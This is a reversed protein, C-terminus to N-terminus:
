RKLFRDLATQELQIVEEIGMAKLTEVYEDFKELPETGMIFKLLMEEHYVNLDTMISAKQRGEEATLTTLPMRMNTTAKEWNVLAEKQSPLELYQEIYGPDQVFPGNYSSRFYQAMAQTIPLDDPNKMIVDTYTPKGDVMTYSEGEIGFNFLNHGEPGYAYDLWKVIQEPNKAATTIAAGIGTYAFDRQGWVANEGKTLTPYPASVLEFSPDDKMLGMYKGIGSGTYGVFAATKGTTIKSDMLKSDMAAFDPDLLGKEYWRNMVTLFEKYEPQMSGYKVTGNDNYFELPIGFAGIFAHGTKMDSIRQMFPPEGNNAEKIAELTTEWEDITEPVPLGAKDLLDKRIIPGFFVMLKEHGRIFPFSYINGEDTMIMKKIEPHENMYKTLNPAHQEILENLRIITGSKIADDPGRSVSLWNREIVDPLKKSALMLNFQEEIQAGEGSPHTFTVKTGTVKELQQYIKSEQLGAMTAAANPNLHVWYSLSEPMKVEAAAGDPAKTADPAKTPDNSGSGNNGGSCAALMVTLIMLALLNSLLRKRRKM